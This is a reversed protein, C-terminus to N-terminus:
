SKNGLTYCSLYNPIIQISLPSKEVIAKKMGNKTKASSARFTKTIYQVDNILRSFTREKKTLNM